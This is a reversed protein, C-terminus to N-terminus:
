VAGAVPAGSADRVVALADGSLAAAAGPGPVVEAPRPAVAPAAPVRDRGIIPRAGPAGSAAWGPAATDPVAGDPSRRPLTPVDALKASDAVVVPAPAAHNAGLPEPRPPVALHELQAVGIATSSGPGEYAMMGAG